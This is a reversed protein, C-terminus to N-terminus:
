ESPTELRDTSTRQVVQGMIDYVALAWGAVNGLNGIHAERSAHRLNETATYLLQQLTVRDGEAVKGEVLSVLTELEGHSIMVDFMPDCESLRRRIREIFDDKIM